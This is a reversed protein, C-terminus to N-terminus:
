PQSFLGSSALRKPEVPSGAVGKMIFTPCPFHTSIYFVSSQKTNEETQVVKVASATFTPQVESIFVISQKTNRETQVVKQYTLRRRLLAFHFIKHKKKANDEVQVVKAYIM